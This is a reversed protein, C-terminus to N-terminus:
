YEGVEELIKELQFLTYPFIIGFADFKHTLLMVIDRWACQNNIGVRRPTPPPRPHPSLLQIFHENLKRTRLLSRSILLDNVSWSLCLDGLVVVELTYKCNSRTTKGKTAALIVRCSYQQIAKCNCKQPCKRNLVSSRKNCCHEGCNNYGASKM